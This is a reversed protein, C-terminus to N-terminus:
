FLVPLTQLGRLNIDQRWHPEPDALRIAPLRQLLTTFAIQAETRALPAGLCFHIGWGFALHKNKTRGVDLRDPNSFQAPDRNAASQLLIVTDGKRIHRGRLAIDEVPLRTAIQVPSEYRLFEEVATGMLAPDTKLRELAAQDNLLSYLGNGILHVTTEHGAVFLFVCLGLLEDESLGGAEDEVAALASILDPKPELRREHTLNRFYGTLEAYSRYAAPAVKALSPGIGGVFLVLDETWRRFQEQNGEPIGLIDCIVAAPLPFAFDAMFDMHQQREVRDIMANVIHQIRGKMDEALKPTFVRMILGRMRTHKPPDTFGLWNSVHIGLPAMQTRLPESLANMNLSVRDSKLRPDRLGAYVDDYRTLLWGNLPECWHVPDEARLYHFLPYPDALEQRCYRDYAARWDTAVM